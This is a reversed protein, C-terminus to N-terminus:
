YIRIKVTEPSFSNHNLCRIELKTWFKQQLEKDPIGYIVHLAEWSVECKYSGLKEMFSDQTPCPIWPPHLPIRLFHSLFLIECFTVFSTCFIEVRKKRRKKEFLFLCLFGFEAKQAKLAYACFYRIYSKKEHHVSASLIEPHQRWLVAVLQDEWQQQGASRCFCSCSCSHETCFVNLLFLVVTKWCKGNSCRRKGKKFWKTGSQLHPDLIWILPVWVKAVEIGPFRSNMMQGWFVPVATFVVGERWDSKPLFYPVLIGSNSVSLGGGGMGADM